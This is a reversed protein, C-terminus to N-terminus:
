GSSSETAARREVAKRLMKYRLIISFDLYLVIALIVCVLYFVKFDLLMFMYGGFVGGLFYSTGITVHLRLKSKLEETTKYKPNVYMAIEMGLDTFLGTVHTTKVKGGSITAVLGNQLGMSYLLAGVLFVTEQLSEKYHMHGYYGVIVLLILEISIPISHGLIQSKKKFSNVIFNSSFAGFLFLFLWAFVVWVQYWHGKVIEEAFIAMHGTVNSTFAFFAIVSVVNVMGAAIATSAALQLNEKETRNQGFKRLM